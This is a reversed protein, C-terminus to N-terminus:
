RFGESRGADRMENLVDLAQEATIYGLNVLIDGFLIAEVGELDNEIQVGMADTFQDKSIFGKEIAIVGFRKRKQANSM